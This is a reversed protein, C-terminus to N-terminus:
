SLIPQSVRTAQETNFNCSINSNITATMAGSGETSWKKSVEGRTWTIFSAYFFALTKSM